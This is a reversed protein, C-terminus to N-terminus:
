LVSMIEQIMKVIGRVAMLEPLVPSIAATISSGFTITAVGEVVEQLMDEIIKEVIEEFKKELADELQQKLYDTLDNLIQHGRDELDKGLSDVSGDFTSHHQDITSHLNDHHDPVEQEHLSSLKQDFPEHTQQINTNHEQQVRNDMTQLHEQSNKHHDEIKQKHEGLSQHVQTCTTDHKSAHEQVTQSTNDTHTHLDAFDSLLQEIASSLEQINQTVGDHLQSHADTVEHTSQDLAQTHEHEMDTYKNLTQETHEAQSTVQGHDMQGPLETLTSLVGQLLANMDNHGGDIHEHSTTLKKDGETLSEILDPFTM